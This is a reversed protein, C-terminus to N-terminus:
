KLAQSIKKLMLSFVDGLSRGPRTFTLEIKHVDVTAGREAINPFSLVFRYSGDKLGQDADGGERELPPLWFQAQGVTWPGDAQTQPYTAIITDIGLKDVNTRDNLQVPFPNFFADQSFAVRGDTVVLLDGKPITLKTVGVHANEVAYQEHPVAIEITQGGLSVTQVGEAHRTFLTIHQADTWLEVPRPDDLYGVEDGVFVNKTYTLKPLTTSLERWYIDNGANLEVKVLGAQLGVVDLHLTRRDIAANTDDTVGDDDAKVEAVLEQGQFVRIAVPDAGPNRNMDMYLADISFGRGNTVTVFEHFGRLSVQTQRVFGNYTWARPVVNDEPLAYHYTAITSLSPPDQLISAVDEYTGVRQYLVISDRREQVWDLGDLVTNVLPRLDIQGAVANVTAGLEIIPQDETKVWVRMDVTEYNGPPTVSVYVPDGDIPFYADGDATTQLAGVRGTPRLGHVFASNDGAEWVITTTGDLDLYVFSVWGFLIIPVLLVLINLLAKM